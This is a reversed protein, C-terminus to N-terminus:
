KVRKTKGSKGRIKRIELVTAVMNSYHMISQLQSRKFDKQVPCLLGTFGIGLENM